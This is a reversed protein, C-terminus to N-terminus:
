FCKGKCFVSTGTNIEELIAKSFARTEAASTIQKDYAAKYISDRDYNLSAQPFKALCKALNVAQGFATFFFKSNWIEPFMVYSFIMIKGTGPAVIRNALGYDFAEKASVVRGTLIIDLARSLGVLAYLRAAGGDMLPMGFRRNFFGLCADEEIVRLDCMLALELGNAICYGSIGCVIPKKTRSIGSTDIIPCMKNEINPFDHQLMADTQAFEKIDYGSSFSGGLGYLVGVSALNDDEFQRIVKGLEETMETNIANRKEPRNLTLIAVPGDLEYGM